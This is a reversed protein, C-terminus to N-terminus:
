KQSINCNQVTVYKNTAETHSVNLDSYSDYHSDIQWTVKFIGHHVYKLPRPWVTKVMAIYRPISHLMCNAVASDDRGNQETFRASMWLFYKLRPMCACFESLLSQVIHPSVETQIETYQKNRRCTPGVINPTSLFSPHTNPTDCFQWVKLLIKAISSPTADYSVASHRQKGSLTSAVTM